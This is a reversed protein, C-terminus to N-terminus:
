RGLVNVTMGLLLYTVGFLWGQSWNGWIPWLLPSVSGALDATGSAFGAKLGQCAM